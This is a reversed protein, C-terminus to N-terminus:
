AHEDGKGPSVPRDVPDHATSEVARVPSRRRDPAPGPHGHHVFGAWAAPHSLSTDAIDRVVGAPLSGPNSRHPDLMWLQAARLADVPSHHEIALYHHFVAMFLLTATDQINWRSGVVDRAGTAVFATTLTLAEDHERSSLDTRCASLVVLPGDEGAQEGIPRDLLRTVTLMGLDPQAGPGGDAPPPSEPTDPVALYLASRTPLPGEAGHSAIHLLSPGEALAALLEDPTGYAEWSAPSEDYEGYLRAQPYYTRQLTVVEIEAYTLVIRPDAVLIPASAPNRPARRVTRLFQSGSAAYSVVATQCLFDGHGGNPLHAAHWPIIGLKGCPVLVLRPLEVSDRHRRSAIESLVPRMVQYASDCLDSLAAKWSLLVDQDLPSRAQSTSADIYRELPGAELESLAILPVHSIGTAGVVIATGTDEGAGPLLYVLADAGSDAVATGLEDLTPTALLGDQQRYGLAELARRRLASPLAVPVQATELDDPVASRWAEALDHHGRAELLEPVARDTSAARLVMARGLELADLADQQRGLSTAWRATLVGRSACATAIRLGHEAGLQLVVDAAMHRLAETAADVSDNLDEPSTYWRYRYARAWDWLIEGALYSGQGERVVDRLQDLEKLAAIIAKPDHVRGPATRAAAREYQRIMAGAFVFREDLTAEPPPPTIDSLPAGTLEARILDNVYRPFDINEEPAQQYQRTGLAKAEELYPRLAAADEHGLSTLKTCAAGLVTVYLLRHPHAPDFEREMKLVEDKLHRVQTVDEANEIQKMLQLLRMKRAEERDAANPSTMGQKSVESSIAVLRGLAAERDHLNGGGLRAFQDLLLDYAINFPKRIEDYPELRMLLGAMDELLRKMPEPNGTRTSEEYSSVVSGFIRDVMIEIEAREASEAEGDAGPFHTLAGVTGPFMEDFHPFDQALLSKMQETDHGLVAPSCNSLLVGMRRVDALVGAPLPLKAADDAARMLEEAAGPEELDTGTQRRHPYSADLAGTRQAMDKPPFVLMLLFLAAWQRDDPTTHVLTRAGRLLRRAHNRDEAVGGGILHRMALVAGLRMQVARDSATNPDLLHYLKSLEEVVSSLQSM